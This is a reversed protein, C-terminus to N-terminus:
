APPPAARAAPVSVRGALVVRRRQAQEGGGGDERRRDCPSSRAFAGHRRSGQPSVGGVEQAHIATFVHRVCLGRREIRVEYGHEIMPSFAEVKAARTTAEVRAPRPEATIAASDASFPGRCPPAGPGTSSMSSAIPRGSCAAATM